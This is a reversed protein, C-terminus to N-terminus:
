PASVTQSLQVRHEGTYINFRGERVFGMLTMGFQRALDVALSSPASVAAVMPIGAMMAKQLIEFSSRGSVMMLYENLPVKQGLLQEGILKDVANHRGVDEHLGILQGDVDFLGAAHLGGTKDFVSQKQRLKRALHRIVDDAVLPRDKPILPCQQVRLAELSAKGCVGCSSTTYFHRTLKVPDFKVGANLEVVLTNCSEQKARLTRAPKISALDGQGQIIGETLLFGAALETDHGPTRMTISLSQEVMRGQSHFKLRIELPEEVALFDKQFGCQDAEVRQVRAFKTAARAMIRWDNKTELFANSDIGGTNHCIRKSDWPKRGCVADANWGAARGRIGLLLASVIAGGFDKCLSSLSVRLSVMSRAGTQLGASCRSHYFLFRIVILNGAHLKTQVFPEKCGPDELGPGLSSTGARQSSHLDVSLHGLSMSRDAGFILDLHTTAM